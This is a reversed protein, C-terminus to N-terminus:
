FNLLIRDKPVGADMMCQTISECMDRQGCLLVGTHRGDVEPREKKFIDQIYGEDESYVVRVTLNPFDNQWEEIDQMVPSAEANRVGYYLHVSRRKEM